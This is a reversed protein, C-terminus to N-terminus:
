SRAFRLSRSTLCLGALALAFYGLASGGEPVNETWLGPVRSINGAKYFTKTQVNHLYMTDSAPDYIMNDIYQTPGIGLFDIDLPNYAGSTFDFVHDFGTTVLDGFINQEHAGTFLRGNIMTAFGIDDDQFTKSQIINLNPDVTSLRWTQGDPADTKALLFAGTPNSPDYFFNMATYGGWSFTDPGDRGPALGSFSVNREVAGTTLNERSSGTGSTDANFETRAFLSGNAAVYTGYYPQQLTVTASSTGAEFAAANSFEFIDSSEGNFGYHQYYKGTAPDFTISQYNNNSEERVPTFTLDVALSNHVVISAGVAWSLPFKNM